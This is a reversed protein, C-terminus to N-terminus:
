MGAATAAELQDAAERLESAMKRARAQAAVDERAQRAARRSRASLLALRAFHAKRKADVRRAREAPDLEGAPDVEREFRAELGRRAPATAATRDATHAWREHAAIRGRLSAEASQAPMASDGRETIHQRVLLCALVL